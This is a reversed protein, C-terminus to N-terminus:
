RSILNPPSQLASIAQLPPTCPARETRSLTRLMQRFRELRSAYKRVQPPLLRARPQLIRISRRHHASRHIHRLLQQLAVRRRCGQLRAAAYVHTVFYSLLIAFAVVLKDRLHPGMASLLARCARTRPEIYEAYQHNPEPHRLAHVVHRGRDVFQVLLHAFFLRDHGHAGIKSIRNMSTRSVLASIPLVWSRSVPRSSAETLQTLTSRCCIHASM